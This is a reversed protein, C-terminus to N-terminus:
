FHLSGAWLESRNLVSRRKLLIDLWVTFSFSHQELITLSCMPECLHFHRSCSSYSSNELCDQLRSYLQRLSVTAWGKLDKMRYVPLWNSLTICNFLWFSSFLRFGMTWQVCYQLYSILRLYHLLGSTFYVEMYLQLFFFLWNYGIVCFASNQSLHRHAAQM